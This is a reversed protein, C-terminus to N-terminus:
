PENEGFRSPDGSGKIGPKKWGPLGAQGIGTTFTVMCIGPTESSHDVTGNTTSLPALTLTTWGASAMVRRLSLGASRRRRGGHAFDVTRALPTPPVVSSQDTWLLRRKRRSLPVSNLTSVSRKIESSLEAVVENGDRM